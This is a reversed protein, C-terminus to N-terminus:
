DPAAVPERRVAAAVPVGRRAAYAYPHNFVQWAAAAPAALQFSTNLRVDVVSVTLRDTGPAWLLAVEIGDASRSALEVPAPTATTMPSIIAWRAGRAM